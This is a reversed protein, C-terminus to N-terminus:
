RRVLRLALEAVEWGMENKEFRQQRQYVALATINAEFQCATVGVENGRRFGFQTLCGAHPRYSSWAHRFTGNLASGAPLDASM